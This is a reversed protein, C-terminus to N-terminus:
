TFELEGAHAKDVFPSKVIELLRLLANRGQMTAEFAESSDAMVIDPV